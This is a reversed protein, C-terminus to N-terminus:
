DERRLRREEPEVAQGVFVTFAVLRLREPDIDKGPGHDKQAFYTKIIVPAAQQGDLEPLWLRWENTLMMGFEPFSSTGIAEWTKDLTVSGRLLTVIDELGIKPASFPNSIISMKDFQGVMTLKGNLYEEYDFSRNTPPAQKGNIRAKLRAAVKSSLVEDAAKQNFDSASQRFTYEIPKVRKHSIIGLDEGYMMSFWGFLLAVQIKSMIAKFSLYRNMFGQM